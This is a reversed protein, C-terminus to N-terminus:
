IMINYLCARNYFPLRRRINENDINKKFERLERRFPLMISGRLGYIIQTDWVRIYRSTNLVDSKEYGRQGDGGHVPKNQFGYQKPDYQIDLNKV